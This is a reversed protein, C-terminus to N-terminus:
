IIIFVVWEDKYETYESAMYDPPILHYNTEYFTDYSYTATEAGAILGVLNNTNSCMELFIKKKYKVVILESWNIKILNWFNIKM